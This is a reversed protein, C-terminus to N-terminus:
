VRRGNGDPTARSHSMRAGRPNRPIPLPRAPAAAHLQATETPQAQNWTQFARKYETEQRDKRGRLLSQIQSAAAQWSNIPLVGHKQVYM